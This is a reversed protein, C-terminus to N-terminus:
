IRHDGASWVRLRSIEIWTMWLDLHCYGLLLVMNKEATVDKPCNPKGLCDSSLWQCADSSIVRSPSPQEERSIGREELYLGTVKKVTNHGQVKTLISFFYDGM